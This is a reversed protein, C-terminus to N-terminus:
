MTDEGTTAAVLVGALLPTLSSRARPTAPGWLGQSIVALYHDIVLPVPVDRYSLRMESLWFRATLTCTGVVRAITEADTDARLDRGIMARLARTLGRRRELDVRAYRAGLDPYHDVVQVISRSLFRYDYQAEFTRRYRELLAVLTPSDALDAVARDNRVALEAMLARVLDEKKAFYYSVNGPSLDLDRALDRVGVSELGHTNFLELARYLLTDRTTGM